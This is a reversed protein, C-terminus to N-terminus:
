YCDLEMDWKLVVSVSLLCCEKFMPVNTTDTATTREVIPNLDL